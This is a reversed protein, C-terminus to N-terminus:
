TYQPVQLESAVRRARSSPSGHDDVPSDGLSGPLGSRRPQRTKHVGPQYDPLMFRPRGSIPLRGARGTQSSVSLWVGGVADEVDNGTGSCPPSGGLFSRRWRDLIM